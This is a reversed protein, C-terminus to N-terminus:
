QTKPPYLKDSISDVLDKRIDALMTEERQMKEAQGTRYRTKYKRYGYIEGNWIVEESKVDVVKVYAKLKATQYIAYYRGAGTVSVDSMDYEIKGSRELTFKPEEIQGFVVLDAGTAQGLEVADQPNEYLAKSSINLEKMKDKIPTVEQSKDFEWGKDRYRLSLRTGIGYSLMIPLSNYKGSPKKIDFSAIVVNSYGELPPVDKGTFFRMAGCGALPIVIATIITLVLCRRFM